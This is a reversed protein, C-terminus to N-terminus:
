AIPTAMAIRKKFGTWWEYPRIYGLIINLWSFPITYGTEYVKDDGWTTNKKGKGGGRARKGVDLDTLHLADHVVGHIQDHFHGSRYHDLLGNLGHRCHRFPSSPISSVRNTSRSMAANCLQNTTQFMIKKNKWINPIIIRVSKWIKWLPLDVVLWIINLWCWDVKFGVHILMIGMGHICSWM